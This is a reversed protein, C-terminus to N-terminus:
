GTQGERLARCAALKVAVAVIEAALAIEEVSPYSPALRINKDEPDKGLPWTAGVPTLTVGCDKCLTEVYKASGVTVDLSIFYGGKPKSWQAIGLETLEEDLIKQVTEFKPRLLEAHRRMQAKIDDLHHYFYAHKLQNIKDHGIIQVAMRKKIEAINADSAAVASLGAGAFTIKSTSAVAIFRDETGYEKAVEFVNALEDTEDYLDHVTYAMDWIVRFDKAGTEMAALRRVTEPSFTVGDPNSYKPVCFMGKVAPDKVAAELRDMDPGEATMPVCVFDFGFHEAVKFHRDYGPVLAIMKRDRCFLWPEGGAIGHTMAQSVYDYMINLSSCGCVVVNDKGVGMIEGFLSRTEELGFPVGYNRCDWGDSSKVGTEERTLNFLPDSLDLQEPSPKGRAMNLALGKAKYAEYREAAEREFRALAEPSYDRLLGSM